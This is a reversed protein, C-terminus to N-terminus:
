RGFLDDFTINDLSLDFCKEIDLSLKLPNSTVIIDNESLSVVEVFANEYKKM